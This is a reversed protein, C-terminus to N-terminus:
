IDEFKKRLREKEREIAEEDFSSSKSMTEGLSLGEAEGVKIVSLVELIADLDWDDDEYDDEWDEDEEIDTPDIDTPNMEIANMEIANMDNTNM